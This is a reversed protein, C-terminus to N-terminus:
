GLGPILSTDDFVTGPASGSPPPTVPPTPPVIQPGTPTLSNANGNGALVEIYANGNSPAGYPGPGTPDEVIFSIGINPDNYVFFSPQTGIFTPPVQRPRPQPVAQQDRVGKVFDQPQRPEWLKRDVIRGTWEQKTRSALVRFGSRDDIRLFDGKRYRQGWAM